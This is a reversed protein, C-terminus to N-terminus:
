LNKQTKQFCSTNSVIRILATLSFLFVAPWLLLMYHTSLHHLAEYFRPPVALYPQHSDTPTPTCSLACITM